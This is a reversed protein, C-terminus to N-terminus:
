VVSSRASVRFQSNFLVNYKVWWPRTVDFVKTKTPVVSPRDGTRYHIIELHVEKFLSWYFQFWFLFMTMLSCANSFTTRLADDMKNRGRCSLDHGVFYSHSCFNFPMWIDPKGPWCKKCTTMTTTVNSQATFSPWHRIRHTFLVM